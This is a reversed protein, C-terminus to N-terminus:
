LVHYNKLLEITSLFYNVEEPEIPGPFRAMRQGCASCSLGNQYIKKTLETLRTINGPAPTVNAARNEEFVRILNLLVKGDHAQYSLSCGANKCIASV